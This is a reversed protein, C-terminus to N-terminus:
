TKSRVYIGNVLWYGMVLGLVVAAALVWEYHASLNIWPGSM